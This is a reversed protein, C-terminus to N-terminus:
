LKQQKTLAPRHLRVTPHVWVATRTALRQTLLHALDAPLEALSPAQSGDCEEAGLVLVGPFAAPSLYAFVGPLM